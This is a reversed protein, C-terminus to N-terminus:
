PGAAGAPSHPERVYYIDWESEGTPVFGHRRYFRNSASGRLAGVKIVRGAADAEAFLRRLVEAGIGRGQHEPLVYLHDLSLDDGEPRCAFFGVPMGDRLIWRMHTPSFSQRMRMRARDPDFRGAAELSPQMAAVRIDALRDFDDETVAVYTVEM